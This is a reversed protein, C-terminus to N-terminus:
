HIVNISGIPAYSNVKVVRDRGGCTIGQTQPTCIQHVHGLKLCHILPTYDTSQLLAPAIAHNTPKAHRRIGGDSSVADPVSVGPENRPLLRIHVLQDLGSAFEMHHVIM